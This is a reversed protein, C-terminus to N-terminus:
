MDDELGIAVIASCLALILQRAEPLPVLRCATRLGADEIGQGPLAEVGAREMIGRPGGPILSM